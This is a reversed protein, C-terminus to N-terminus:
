LLEIWDKSPDFYAKTAGDISYGAVRVVESSATPAIATLTGASGATSTELYLPSGVTAGAPTHDLVVIGKNLLGENATTAGAVAVGLLGDSSSQNISDSLAWGSAGLYYVKGASVGGTGFETVVGEHEGATPTFPTSRVNFALEEGQTSGGGGGSGTITITDSGNDTVTVTGAGVLNLAGTLTELSSVGGGGTGSSANIVRGQADVEVTANTYTGATVGSNTLDLDIQGTGTIVDVDVAGTGTFTVTGTEGNVDTVGGGGGTSTITITDSGNDTITVGGGGVLTVGGVLSNLTEVGADGTITITDSGNNSVTVAGAGSLNLVGTLGDLSAVGSGFSVSDIIDQMTYIERLGDAQASGREVTPTNANLTHFKQDAPIQAM